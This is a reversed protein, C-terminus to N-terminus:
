ILNVLHDRGAPRGSGISKLLQKQTAEDSGALYARRDQDTSFIHISRVGRQTVDHPYGRAGVRSIRAMCRLSGSKEDLLFKLITNGSAQRISLQSLIQMALLAPLPNHARVRM